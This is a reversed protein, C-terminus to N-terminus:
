IQTIEKEKDKEKLNDIRDKLMNVKKQKDQKMIHKRIEEPPRKPKWTQIYKKEVSKSDSDAIRDIYYVDFKYENSKGTAVLRFTHSNQIGTDCRWLQQADGTILNGFIRALHVMAEFTRNEDDHHDVVNMTTNIDPKHLAKNKSNIVSEMYPINEYKINEKPNYDKQFFGIKETLDYALRANAETKGTGSKGLTLIFPQENELIKNIIKAYFLPYKEGDIWCIERDIDWKSKPIKKRYLESM